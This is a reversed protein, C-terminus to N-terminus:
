GASLSQSTDIHATLDDVTVAHVPDEPAVWRFESTPVPPPRILANSASLPPGTPAPSVPPNAAVVAWGNVDDSMVLRTRLASQPSLQAGVGGVAANVAEQVVRDQSKSAPSELPDM